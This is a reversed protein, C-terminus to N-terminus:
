RAGVELLVFLFMGTLTPGIFATLVALWVKRSREEQARKFDMFEQRLTAALENIHTIADRDAARESAYLERDVSRSARRECTARTDDILRFAEGLTRAPDDAIV